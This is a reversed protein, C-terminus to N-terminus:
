VPGEGNWFDLIVEENLKTYDQCYRILKDTFAEFMEIEAEDGYVKIARGRAAFRLKPYLTKLLLINSNNVGYFIVPDAQELLIVKEIMPAFICM